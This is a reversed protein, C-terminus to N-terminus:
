ISLVFPHVRNLQFGPLQYGGQKCRAHQTTHPCRCHTVHVGAGLCLLGSRHSSNGCHGSLPTRTSLGQGTEGGDSCAVARRYDVDARAARLLDGIIFSIFALPRHSTGHTFPQTLKPKWRADEPLHRPLTAARLLHRHSSLAGPEDDARVAQDHGVRM